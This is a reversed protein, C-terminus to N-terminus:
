PNHDSDEDTRNNHESEEQQREAEGRAALSTLFVRLGVFGRDNRLFYLLDHVHGCGTLM